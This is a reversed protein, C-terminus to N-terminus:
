IDDIGVIGMTALDETPINYRSPKTLKVIFVAEPPILWYGVFTNWGGKCFWNWPDSPVNKILERNEGKKTAFQIGDAKLLEMWLLDKTVPNCFCRYVHCDSLGTPSGGSDDHIIATM